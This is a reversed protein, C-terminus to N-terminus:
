TSVESLKIKVDTSDFSLSEIRKCQVIQGQVFKINFEGYFQKHTMRELEKTVRNLKFDPM